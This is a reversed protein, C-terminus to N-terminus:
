PLPHVVVGWGAANNVAHLDDGDGTYVPIGLRGAVAVVLADTSSPGTGCKALAEGALLADGRTVPEVQVAGLMKNRIWSQGRWWEALVAAPVVATEDAESILKWLAKARQNRGELAILAGTDLVVGGM